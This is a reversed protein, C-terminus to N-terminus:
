HRPNAKCHWFSMQVRFVLRTMCILEGYELSLIDGRSKKDKKMILETEADAYRRMESRVVSRVGDAAVVIDGAYTKGDDSHIVVGKELHDVKTVRTNVVLKSKDEVREYLIRM